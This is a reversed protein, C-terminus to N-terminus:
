DRKGPQARGRAEVEAVLASVVGAERLRGLLAPSDVTAAERETLTVAGLVEGAASLAGKSKLRRAPSLSSSPPPQAKTQASARM